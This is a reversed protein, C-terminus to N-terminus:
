KLERDIQENIMKAFLFLEHKINSSNSMEIMEFNLIHRAGYSKRLDVNYYKVGILMTSPRNFNEICVECPYTLQEEFEKLEDLTICM